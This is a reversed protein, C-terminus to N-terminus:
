TRSGNVGKSDLVTATATGDVATENTKQTVDQVLSPSILPNTSEWAPALVLEWLQQERGLEDPVFTDQPHICPQM